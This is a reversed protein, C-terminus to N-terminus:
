LLSADFFGGQPNPQAKIVLEGSTAPIAGALNHVTTYSYQQTWARIFVGDYWISIAGTRRISLIRGAAGAGVDKRFWGANGATSAPWTVHWPWNVSIGTHRYFGAQGVAWGSDDVSPSSYDLSTDGTFLYRWESEYGFTPDDPVPDPPETDIDSPYYAYVDANLGHGVRIRPDTFTIRQGVREWETHPLGMGNWSIVLSGEIPAFTLDLVIIGATTCVASDTNWFAIQGTDDEPADDEFDGAAAAAGMPRVLPFRGGVYGVGLRKLNERDQRVRDTLSRTDRRRPPFPSTM